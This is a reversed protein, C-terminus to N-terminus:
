EICDFAEKGKFAQILKGKSNRLIGDIGYMGNSLFSADVNIKV